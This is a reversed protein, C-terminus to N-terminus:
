NSQDPNNSNDPSPTNKSNHECEEKSNGVLSTCDQMDGNTTGGTTSSPMSDTGTGTTSNGTPPVPNTTITGADPNNSNDPAATNKSARECELKTNGVLKTCDTGEPYTATQASAPLIAAGAILAFAATAALGLRATGHSM